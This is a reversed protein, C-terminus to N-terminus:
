AMEPRPDCARINAKPAKKCRGGPPQMMVRWELRKNNILQQEFRGCFACRRTIVTRGRIAGPAWGPRENHDIEVWWQHQIM